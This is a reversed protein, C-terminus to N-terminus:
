GKTHHVFVVGEDSAEETTQEDEGHVDTHQHTEATKPPRLGCLM